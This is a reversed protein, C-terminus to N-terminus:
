YLDVLMLNLNGNATALDEDGYLPLKGSSKYWKTMFNPDSEVIMVYDCFGKQDAKPCKETTLNSSRMPHAHDMKYLPPFSAHRKPHTFLKAGKLDMMWSPTDDHEEDEMPRGGYEDEDEIDECTAPKGKPM